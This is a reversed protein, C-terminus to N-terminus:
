HAGHESANQHDCTMVRRVLCVETYTAHSLKDLVLLMPSSEGVFTTLVVRCPAERIQQSTIEIGHEYRNVTLQGNLPQIRRTRLEESGVGVSSQMPLPSVRYHRRQYRRSM